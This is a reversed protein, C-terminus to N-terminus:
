IWRCQSYVEHNLTDCNHLTTDIVPEPPGSAGSQDKGGPDHEFAEKNPQQPSPSVVHVYVQDAKMENVDEQDDISSFEQGEPIRSSADESEASKSNVGSFM